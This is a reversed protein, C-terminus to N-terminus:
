TRSSRERASCAQFAPAPIRARASSICTRFTRAGTTPVSGRQSRSCDARGLVRQRPPQQARRSLLAPRCRARDCHASQPGASLARELYEIIADRYPVSAKAWDTAGGLHPVPSLCTGATAARRRSRRIPQRRATCTCRSIRRRPTKQRFIDDLLGEYRPGMLIEHHAMDDYRRDTGFYIVFLSM